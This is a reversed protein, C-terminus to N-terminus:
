AWPNFKLGKAKIIAEGVKTLSAVCNITDPIIQKQLGKKRWASKTYSWYLCESNFVSYALIISPDDTLCVVKVVVNPRMIISEIFKKYTEYYAQSDIQKFMSNGFKQGKLWTSSIFGFDDM